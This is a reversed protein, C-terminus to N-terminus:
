LAVVSARDLCAGSLWKRVPPVQVWTVTPHRRVKRPGLPRVGEVDEQM